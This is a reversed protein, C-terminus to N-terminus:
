VEGNRLVNRFGFWVFIIRYSIERINLKFHKETKFEKDSLFLLIM